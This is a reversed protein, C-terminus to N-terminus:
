GAKWDSYQRCGQLEQRRKAEMDQIYSGNHGPAPRFFRQREEEERAELFDHILMRLIESETFGYKNCYAALRVCTDESMLFHKHVKKAMHQKRISDEHGDKGFSCIRNIFEPM